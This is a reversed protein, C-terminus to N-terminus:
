MRRIFIRHCIFTFGSAFVVAYILSGFDFDGFWPLGHIVRDLSGGFVGGAAGFVVGCTVRRARAEPEVVLVTIWGGLAGFILWFLVNLM